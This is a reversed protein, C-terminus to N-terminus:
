NARSPIFHKTARLGWGWSASSAPGEGESERSVRAGKIAGSREGLHTETDQGGTAAHVIVYRSGRIEGALGIGALLKCLESDCEFGIALAHHEYWLRNRGRGKFTEAGSQSSVQLGDLEGLSGSLIGRHCFFERMSLANKQKTPDMPVALVSVTGSAIRNAAPRTAANPGM